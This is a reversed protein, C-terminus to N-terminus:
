NNVNQPQLLSAFHTNRKFVPFGDSDTTTSYEYTEIAPTYVPADDKAHPRTFSKIPIFFFMKGKGTFDIPDNTILNDIYFKNSTHDISGNGKTEFHFGMATIFQSMEVSKNLRQVDRHYMSYDGSLIERLLLDHDSFLPQTSYSFLKEDTSKKTVYIFHTKLIIGSAITNQLTNKWSFDKMEPINKLLANFESMDNAKAIDRPNIEEYNTVVTAPSVGKAIASTMILPNVHLMGILKNEKKNAVIYIMQPDSKTDFLDLFYVYDGGLQKWSSHDSYDASVKDADKIGHAKLFDAHENKNSCSTAILTLLFLGFAPIRLCNKM